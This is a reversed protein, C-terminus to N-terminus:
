KESHFKIKKALKIYYSLTMCKNALMILQISCFEQSIWIGLM